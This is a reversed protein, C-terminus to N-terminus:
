MINGPNCSAEESSSGSCETGGNAPPPNNCQRERYKKRTNAQCPSWSGWESWGGNVVKDKCEGDIWSCAGEDECDEEACASCKTFFFAGMTGCGALTYLVNHHHINNYCYNRVPYRVSDIRVSVSFMWSDMVSRVMRIVSLITQAPSM